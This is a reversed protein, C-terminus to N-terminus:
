AVTVDAVVLEQSYYFPVTDYMNSSGFDALSRYIRTAAISLAIFGPMLFMQM